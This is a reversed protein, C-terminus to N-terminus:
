IKSAHLIIKVFEYPDLSASGIVVGEMNKLSIYQTINNINVSGGYFISSNVSQAKIKAIMQSVEKAKVERSKGDQFSSIASQPEYMFIVNQKKDEELSVLSDKIQKVFNVENFPNGESQLLGIETVKDSLCVIPIINNNLSQNIKKNVINNDEFFNKRRESHGILVFDVYERIQRASVEGTYAGDSFASVDQACLSINYGNDVIQKKLINLHIFSPAVIIKLKKELQKSQPGVEKIWSLVESTDKNCKWNAVITKM